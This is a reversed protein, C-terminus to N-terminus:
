RKKKGYGRPAESPQMCHDQVSKSCLPYHDKPPPPETMNGGEIIPNAASGPRASPDTPVGPPAPVMTPDNSVPTPPVRANPDAPTAADAPQGAEPPPTSSEMQAYAAPAMALMMAGAWLVSKRM